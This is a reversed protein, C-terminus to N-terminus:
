AQEGEPADRGVYVEIEAIRDGDFRIYEALTSGSHEGAHRYRVMFAPAAGFIEIDVAWSKGVHPWIEDLMRDRDEHVGFPSIHRFDPTLLRELGARDREAFCGYYARIAAEHDM